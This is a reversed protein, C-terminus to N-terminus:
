LTISKNFYFLSLNELIDSFPSSGKLSIGPRKLRGINVM